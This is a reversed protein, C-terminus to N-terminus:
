HTHEKKQKFLHSVLIAVFVTIAFLHLLRIHHPFFHYHSCCCDRNIEGRAFAKIDRPQQKVVRHLGREM